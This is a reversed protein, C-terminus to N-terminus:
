PSEWGQMRASGRPRHLRRRALVVYSGTIALAVLVQVAWDYGHPFLRGTLYHDVFGGRYRPEAADDRRDAGGSGCSLRSCPTRRNVRPPRM